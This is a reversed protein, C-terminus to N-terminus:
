SEQSFSAKNTFIPALTKVLAKILGKGFVKPGFQGLQGAKPDSFKTLEIFNQM